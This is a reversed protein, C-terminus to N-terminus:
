PKSEKQSLQDIQEALWDQVQPFLGEPIGLASANIQAASFPPTIDKTEGLCLGNQLCPTPHPTLHLLMKCDVHVQDNTRSLSVYIDMANTSRDFLLDNGRKSFQDKLLACREPDLLSAMQSEWERTQNGAAEGLAPLHWGQSAFTSAPQLLVSSPVNTKVLANEALGSLNGLHEKLAAEINKREEPSLGFLERAAESLEGATTVMGGLDLRSLDAKSIRVFPSNTPWRYDDALLQARLRVKWAEYKSRAEAQRAQLAVRQEAATQLQKTREELRTTQARVATLTQETSTLQKQLRVLESHSSQIQHWQWGVPIGALLLCAAATQAKSWSACRAALAALGSLSPPAMQEAALAVARAVTAPAAQSTFKLAAASVAVTATRYGRRQFFAAVKSLAGAVRKQATDETTGLERGVDRLSRNEYFRLLLATRDTERLSLLAEDLQPLLARLSSEDTQPNMTTGLEAATQERRRRRLEGRLWERSALLTTKYLWAPLSDDPGFQWAKHALAAFTNQAVEQAAEPQGLKHLATAYVLDLHRRVLRTFAPQEEHRVFAQLLEFDSREENM